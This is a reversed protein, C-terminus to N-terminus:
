PLSGRRGSVLATRRLGFGPWLRRSKLHQGIPCLTGVQSSIATPSPMHRGRHRQSIAPEPFGSAIKWFGPHTGRSARRHRRRVVSALRDRWITGNVGAQGGENASVIPRGGREVANAFGNSLDILARTV